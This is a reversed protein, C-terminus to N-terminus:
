GHRAQHDHLLSRYLVLHQSVDLDIYDRWSRSTWRGIAMIVHEPLGLEVLHTAGARRLGHTTIGLASGFAQKHLRKLM